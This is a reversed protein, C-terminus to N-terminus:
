VEFNEWEHKVRVMLKKFREEGRINELFPDYENLFPYNICGYNIGYELWDLAEEKEKILAYRGAITIPYITNLKMSNKLEETVAQLANKKDGKLSFKYFLASQAWISKPTEKVVLDFLKYAEEFRQNYSLIFAYWVRFFPNEPSMLYMMSCSELASKFRGDYMELMASYGYIVPNMPDIELAKKIIPRGDSPRGLHSYFCPLLSLAESNNPNIELAQKEEKAARKVEGRNYYIFGLLSHVDSSEPNMDLIKKAYEEAKQLYNLDKDIAANFFQTNIMGLSSLFLENEGFLRIGNEILQQARKLGDETWSWIENRAKLYCELAQFNEIAREALQKNEKQTLKVKLADVIKRSVEEQIDFIDDLTGKFKEAWLHADTTADILQATIRLNNGAKRVSGELVYRVNVKKVIEPITQNTGKFTMASSRSIVLLDHIHSLDTIIEETLGDSFYEQEPDSSMNEFPLVIISKEQEPVKTKVMPMKKLEYIIEEMSQYRDAPSKELARFIIEEIYDPIDDRFNTIPQPAENQISYMMAAEYEGRFPFRGTLMEYMVVGTSFIDARKDIEEGRIQEPAMYAMTGVTSFTKTLKVSGKLKALGFDMVKVQNDATIMINDTKVDRHIIDKSHAANLAECIRVGYDAATNLDLPAEKIIERLTRGDVYEMVIFQQRKHEKIDHIVCVNPHNIKSVSKAEKLLRKLATEDDSLHPPLFKLAVYRDLKTDEAKYVVGMGGEGLKELIKYHLITKGTMEDYELKTPTPNGRGKKDNECM